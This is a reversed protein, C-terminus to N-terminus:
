CVNIGKKRALRYNSSDVRFSYEYLRTWYKTVWYISICGSEHQVIELDEPECKLRCRIESKLDELKEKAQELTIM